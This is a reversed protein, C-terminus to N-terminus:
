KGLCFRAFVQDVIDGGVSEGLIEGLSEYAERVDIEIIDLAEGLQVGMLADGLFRHAQELLSRHRASTVTFSEKPLTAGGLVKTKVEQIIAKVAEEVEPVQIWSSQSFDKQEQPTEESITEGRDGQPRLSVQLVPAGPVLSKAEEVSLACGLDAKNLVVIAEKQALSRGIELDEEMLPRSGDVLFLVLDATEMTQRSRHIGMREIEDTAQRIGATDALHVPVGDFNIFETIADRTTGPISTVIAREEGLIANLLSSKGVNPQGVISISVGEKLRQGRAAGALLEEVKQSIGELQYGLDQYVMEEIDEDPYDMNVAMNVLIDMLDKRIHAIGQSLRGSLQEAAMQRATDTSAEIMDMVAEAQALDVRGNLFARRTFEGREASRAGSHFVLSLIKGLVTMGGHSQIEVVDECTYTHPARMYVAMVEDVMQNTTPDQIYGYYLQRSHWAVERKGPAVFLTKLISLAEKGSIRIIGIGGEGYATSIAAITDEQSYLVQHGM